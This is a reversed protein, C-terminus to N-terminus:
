VAEIHNALVFPQSSIKIEDFFVIFIILDQNNEQFYVFDLLSM